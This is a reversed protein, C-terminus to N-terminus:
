CQNDMPPDQQRTAIQWTNGWRDKVMARRDGYALDAPEELSTAGAAVARRYRADVDDVYVYLFAPMSDRPGATSIMIRSDGIMVESPRESRFDGVADFVTKLFGVLGAADQVVIRPTVSHWGRPISKVM